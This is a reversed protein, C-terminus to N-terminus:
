RYKDFLGSTIGLENVIKNKTFGDKILNQIQEKLKEGQQKKYKMHLIYNARHEIYHVQEESVNLNNDSAYQNIANIVEGTRTHVRFYWEEQAINNAIELLEKNQETIRSVGVEKCTLTYNNLENQFEWFWDEIEEYEYINGDYTWYVRINFLKDDYKKYRAFIQNDNDIDAFNDIDFNNKDLILLKCGLKLAQELFQLYTIESAQQFRTAKNYDTLSGYFISINNKNCFAEIKSLVLEM